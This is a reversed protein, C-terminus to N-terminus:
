AGTLRVAGEAALLGLFDAVMWIESIRGDRVTLVDIVQVSVDAGTGPAPGLPTDLPGAHRGHLRFAVAVREGADAVALVETRRGTIAAGTRRAREVLQDLTVDVGNIRVPDAYLAAFAARAQEDDPPVDDWLTLLREVLVQADV